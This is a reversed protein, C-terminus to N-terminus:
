FVIIRKGVSLVGEAFTIGDDLSDLKYLPWMNVSEKMNAFIAIM